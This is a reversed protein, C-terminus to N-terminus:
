LRCSLNGRLALEQQYYKQTRPDLDGATWLSDISKLGVSDPNSSRLAKLEDNFNDFSAKNDALIKDLRATDVALEETM